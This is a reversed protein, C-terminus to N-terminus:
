LDGPEFDSKLTQYFGERDLGEKFGRAAARGEEKSNAQITTNFENTQSMTKSGAGPVTAGRTGGAAAGEYGRAALSDRLVNDLSPRNSSVTVKKEEDDFLGEFLGGGLSAVQKFFQGTEGLANALAAPFDALIGLFQRALNLAFTVERALSVFKRALFILGNVVAALAVGALVLLVNALFKLVPIVTVGLEDYLASAEELLSGFNKRTM